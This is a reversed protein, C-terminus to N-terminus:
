CIEFGVKIRILFSSWFCMWISRCEFFYIVSDGVLYTGGNKKLIAELTQCFKPGKENVILHAQTEKEEPSSPFRAKVNGSFITKIFGLTLKVLM